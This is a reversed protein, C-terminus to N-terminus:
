RWWRTPTVPRRAPQGRGARFGARSCEKGRDHLSRKIRTGSTRVMLTTVGRAWYNRLAVSPRYFTVTRTFAPIIDTVARDSATDAPELKFAIAALLDGPALAWRALPARVLAEWAM